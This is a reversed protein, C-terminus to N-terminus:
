TDIKQMMKINTDNVFRIKVDKDKKDCELPYLSNLTRKILHETGSTKM